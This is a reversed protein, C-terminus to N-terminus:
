DLILDLKLSRLEDLSYFNLSSYWSSSWIIDTHNKLRYNTRNEPLDNLHTIKFDVDSTFTVEYWEDKILFRNSSKCKVKM